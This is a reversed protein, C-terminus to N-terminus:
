IEKAIETVVFTIAVPGETTLITIELNIKVTGSHKKVVGLLNLMEAVLMPQCQIPYLSPISLVLTGSASLKTTTNDITALSTIEEKM